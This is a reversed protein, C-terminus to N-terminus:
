INYMYETIKVAFFLKWSKSFVATFKTGTQQVSDLQSSSLRTLSLSQM